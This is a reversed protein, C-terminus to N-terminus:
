TGEPENIVDLDLTNDPNSINIFVITGYKVVPTINKHVVYEFTQSGIFVDGSADIWSPTIAQWQTGPEANVMTEFTQDFGNFYVHESDPTLSILNYDPITVDFIQIIDIEASVQTEENIAALVLSRNYPNPNATITLEITDGNQFDDVDSTIWSPLNSFSFVLDTNSIFEVELIDGEFPISLLADPDFEATINEDFDRTFELRDDVQRLKISFDGFATNNNIEFTGFDESQWFNENIYITDHAFVVNFKDAMWNAINYLRLTIERFPVARLKTLIGYDDSYVETDGSVSNEFFRSPIRIVQMSDYVYGWMDDFDYEGTHKYEIAITDLNSGVSIPESLYKKSNDDSLGLNLRVFYDGDTLTVNCSWLDAEKENYTIEVLGSVSSVLSSLVNTLYGEVKLTNHWTASNINGVDFSMDQIQYRIIEGGQIRINPLKGDLSVLDGLVTFDEDTYEQADEFYIFLFGNLSAFKATSRYKLGTYKQKLSFPSTFIVNEDCDIVSLIKSPYNTYVQVQIFDNNEFIQFYSRQLVEAYAAKSYRIQDFQARYNENEGQLTFRLANAVPIKVIFNM